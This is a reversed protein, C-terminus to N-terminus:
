RSGYEDWGGGWGRLRVCRFRFGREVLGKWAELGIKPM